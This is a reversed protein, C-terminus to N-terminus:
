LLFVYAASLINKAVYHLRAIISHLGLWICKISRTYWGTVTSHVLADYHRQCQQKAVAAAVAVWHSAIIVVHRSSGYPSTAQLSSPLLIFVPSFFRRFKIKVTAGDCCTFVVDDTALPASLLWVSLSTERETPRNDAMECRSSLVIQLFGLVRRRPCHWVRDFVMWRLSHTLSYNRLPVDACFLGNM